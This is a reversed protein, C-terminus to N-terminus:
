LLGERRALLALCRLGNGCMQARSGDANIISMSPRAGGLGDLVLVGHSGSLISLGIVHVGEDRASQVIQEPTLTCDQVPEPATELAELHTGLRDTTTDVLGIIHQECVLDM